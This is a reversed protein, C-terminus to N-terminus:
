SSHTWPTTPYQLAVDKDEDHRWVHVGPVLARRCVGASSWLVPTLVCGFLSSYFRHLLLYMNVCKFIVTNKAAPFENLFKEFISKLIIRTICFTLNESCSYFLDRRQRCFLVIIHASKMILLTAHQRGNKPCYNYEFYSHLSTSLSPWM